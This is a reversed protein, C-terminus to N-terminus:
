AEPVPAPIDTWKVAYTPEYTEMNDLLAAPDTDEVLLARHEPRIFGDDVADDFFARLNRFFGGVTDLLGCPKRHIGLQAWTLIECLEDLTGFGGPLAIFGDAEEEMIAKREHMSRTVRLQSVGTHALERDMLAQPIVGIVKGGAELAADAVVGMLGVKGGGYVLTLGRRAIEAGLAHAQAAFEPGAGM